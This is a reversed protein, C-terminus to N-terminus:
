YWEICLSKEKNKNIIPVINFNVNNYFKFITDNSIKTHTSQRISFYDKEIETFERESLDLKSNTPNYDTPFSVTGIVNNEKQSFYVLRFKM